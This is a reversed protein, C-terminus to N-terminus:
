LDRSAESLAAQAHVAVLQSREIARSWFVLRIVFSLIRSYFVFISAPLLSMSLHAVRSLANVFM